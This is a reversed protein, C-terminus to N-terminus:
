LNDLFEAPTVVKIDSNKFDKINRTCIIDIHNSKACEVLLADELDKMKSEMANLCDLSTVDLISFIEFMKTLLRRTKKEDHIGKFLLYHIDTFSNSTIFLEDDRLLSRKLFEFSGEFFTERRQYVDLVVCTDVLIKM